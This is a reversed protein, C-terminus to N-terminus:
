RAAPPSLRSIHYLLTVVSTLPAMHTVATYLVRAVARLRAINPSLPKNTFSGVYCPAVHAYAIASVAGASPLRVPACVCVCVCVVAVAPGTILSKSKSIQKSLFQSDHFHATKVKTANKKTIKM